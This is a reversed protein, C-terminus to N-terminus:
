IMIHQDHHISRTNKKKKQHGNILSSYRLVANSTCTRYVVSLRQVWTIVVSSLPPWILPCAATMFNHGAEILTTNSHLRRSKFVTEVNFLSPLDIPFCDYFLFLFLLSFTFFFLFILLTAVPLSHISIPNRTSISAHMYEYPYRRETEREKEIETEREKEIETEWEKETESGRGADRGKCVWRDLQRQFEKYAWLM